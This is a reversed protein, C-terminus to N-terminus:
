HRRVFHVEQPLAGQEEFIVLDNQPRLWERPIYYFRQTIEGAADLKILPNQL